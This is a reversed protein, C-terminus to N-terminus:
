LFFSSVGDLRMSCRNTSSATATLMQARSTRELRRKMSTLHAYVTYKRRVTNM